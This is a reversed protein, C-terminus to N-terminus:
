RTVRVFFVLIKVLLDTVHRTLLLASLPIQRLFSRHSMTSIAIVFHSGIPFPPHPSLYVFPCLLWLHFLYLLPWLHAANCNTGQFVVSDCYSYHFFYPQDDHSRRPYLRYLKHIGIYSQMFVNERVFFFNEISLWHKLQSFNVKAFLVYYCPALFM